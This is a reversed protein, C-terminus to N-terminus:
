VKMFETEVLNFKKEHKNQVQFESTVMESWKMSSDRSLCQNSLDSTHTIVDMLLQM